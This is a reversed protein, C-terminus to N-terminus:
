IGSCVFATLWHLGSPCTFKSFHFDRALILSLKTPRSRTQKGLLEKRYVVWVVNV